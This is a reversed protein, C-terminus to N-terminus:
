EYLDVGDFDLGNQHCASLAIQLADGRRKTSCWIECGSAQKDILRNLVDLRLDGNRDVLTDDFEIYERPM